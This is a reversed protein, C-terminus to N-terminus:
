RSPKLYKKNYKTIKGNIYADRVKYERKSIHKAYYKQLKPDLLDGCTMLISVAYGEKELKATYSTSDTWIYFLDSLHACKSMREANFQATAYNEVSPDNGTCGALVYAVVLGLTIKKM